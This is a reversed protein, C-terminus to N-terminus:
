PAQARHSLMLGFIGSCKHSISHTRVSGFMSLVWFNKLAVGNRQHHGIVVSPRVTIHRVHPSHPHAPNFKICRLAQGNSM